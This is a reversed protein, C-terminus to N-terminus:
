QCPCDPLRSHFRRRQTGSEKRLVVIPRLVVIRKRRSHAEGIDDFTGRRVCRLRRWFLQDLSSTRKLSPELDNTSRQNDKGEPLSRRRHM